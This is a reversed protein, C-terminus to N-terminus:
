YTNRVQVDDGHKLAQSESVQDFMIRGVLLGMGISCKVYTTTGPATNVTLTAEVETAGSLTHAGPALDAALAVGPSCRRTEKGDLKIIPQVALGMISTRFVVLRARDSKVPPLNALTLESAQEGAPAAVAPTTSVDNGVSPDAVQAAQEACGILVALGLLAIVKSM